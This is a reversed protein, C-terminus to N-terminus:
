NKSAATKMDINNKLVRILSDQVDLRKILERLRPENVNEQPNTFNLKLRATPAFM